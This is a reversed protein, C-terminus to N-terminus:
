REVMREKQMKYFDLNKVFRVFLECETTRLLGAQLVAIIQEKSITLNM